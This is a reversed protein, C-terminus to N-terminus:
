RGVDAEVGANDNDAKNARDQNAEEQFLRMARKVGAEAEELFKRKTQQHGTVVKSPRELVKQRRQDTSFDEAQERLRKPLPKDNGRM